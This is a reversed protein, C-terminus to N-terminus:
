YMHLLVMGSGPIMTWDGDVFCYFYEETSKPLEGEAKFIRLRENRWNHYACVSDIIYSLEGFLILNLLTDYDSYNRLLEAGVGDTYGDWHCYVGLYLDNDGVNPIKVPECDFLMNDMSTPLKSADAIMTKGYDEPRIKIWIM